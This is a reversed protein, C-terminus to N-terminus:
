VPEGAIVVRAVELAETDIGECANICAVIRRADAEATPRPKPALPGSFVPRHTMDAVIYGGAEIRSGRGVKWPAPTHASM